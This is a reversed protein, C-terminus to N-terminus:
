LSKLTGNPFRLVPEAAGDDVVVGPFAVVVDVVGVSVATCVAAAVGDVVSFKMSERSHCKACVCLHCIM